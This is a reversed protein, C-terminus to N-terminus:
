KLHSVGNLDKEVLIYNDAPIDLEDAHHSIIYISNVGTLKRSIMDIIKSCGTSDLNDFIEDLVLINCDFNLFTCLMDRIAFQVILDIKQKEGGSLMEYEKDQYTISINNGDIAFQINSGDFVYESYEKVKKNIFDIVNTLLIGRFDRKIITEFKKIVDISQTTIEINSSVENNKSEINSLENKYGEINQYLMERLSDVSSIKEEIRAINSIESNLLSYVNNLNNNISASQQKLEALLNRKDGIIVKYNDDVEQLRTAKAALENSLEKKQKAVANTLEIIQEKQLTTDAKVVGPIKQGCTPCVDKINELKTIESGLHRIETEKSSIDINLQYTKDKSENEINNKQAQIDASINALETELATVDQTTKTYENRLEEYQTNLTDRREAAIEFQQKYVSIDDITALQSKSDEIQKEIVSRKSNLSLQEDEYERLITNLECHRSSIKNKLDQIMFDSKSLKELVEKRGSPTNSTFRAPLGQGLIIVSGLFSATIDPLYETLLKETDRIGKGSNNKGNITLFLNTKYQEHNKCRTIVYEISDINLEVSILTGGKVFINEVSKTGRITEGTLCWVLAEWISSKGSGNSKASDNLNNNEGSILTFGTEDFDIDACDFSMFREIHLKKFFINM